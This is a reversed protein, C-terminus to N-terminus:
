NLKELLEKSLNIIRVNSDDRNILENLSNFLKNILGNVDLGGDGM